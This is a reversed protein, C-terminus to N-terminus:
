IYYFFYKVYWCDGTSGQQFDTPKFFNKYNSENIRNSYNNEEDLVFHAKLNPLFLDKARKWQIGHILYNQKFLSSHYISNDDTRFHSDVFRKSNSYELKLNQYNQSSIFNSITNNM